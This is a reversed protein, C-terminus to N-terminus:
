VDTSSTSRENNLPLLKVIKLLDIDRVFKKLKKADGNCQISNYCTFYEGNM